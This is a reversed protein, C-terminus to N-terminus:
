YNFDLENFCKPAVCHDLVVWQQPGLALFLLAERVLPLVDEFSWRGRGVVGKFLRSRKDTTGKFVSLVYLAIREVNLYRGRRSSAWPELHGQCLVWLCLIQLCECM